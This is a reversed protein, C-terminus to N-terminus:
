WIRVVLYHILQLCILAYVGALVDDLMIGLGGEVKEDLWKIPQPKWIDFLRFLCFGLVIWQWGEPAAIM